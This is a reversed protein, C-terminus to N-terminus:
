FQAALPLFIRFTTGKGQASQCDITGGHETIIQQILTLGLGTGSPKTSFFPQFIHAREQPSMGKGTDTVSVLARNGDRLTRVTITGGHPMVELANRILNFVAQWLQTKDAHVPPLSDDLQSQVAVRAERFLSECFSLGQALLENLQVRERARPFRAFQLYGDTIRHLRGVESAISELMDRVPVGVQAGTKAMQELEDRTSELNLTISGLPNRIEHAFKSSMTGVVALRETQLKAEELRKRETIDRVVVLWMQKENVRMECCALDIPFTVGGPRQGAAEKPEDSPSFNPVLERITYDRLGAAPLQFMKQAAANSSAVRGQEDVTIIGDLSTEVITRNHAEAEKIKAMEQQIRRAMPRFVFMAMGGLVSLTASLDVLEIRHLRSVNRGRESARIEKEEIFYQAVALLGVLALSLAYRLTLSRISYHRAVAVLLYQCPIPQSHQHAFTGAM